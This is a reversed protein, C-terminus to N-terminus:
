AASTSRADAMRDPPLQLSPPGRRL